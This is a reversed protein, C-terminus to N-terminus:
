VEEGRLFLILYQLPEYYQSLISVERTTSISKQAFLIRHPAPEATNNSHLIAAFEGGASATGEIPADRARLELHLPM